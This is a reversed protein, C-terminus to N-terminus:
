RVPLDARVSVDSDDDPHDIAGSVPINRLKDREQTIIDCQKQTKKLNKRLARMIGSSLVWSTIFGFGFTVFIVLYLPVKRPETSTQDNGESNKIVTTKMGLLSYDSFPFSIQVQELNATAFLTFLCIVIFGLFFKMLKM